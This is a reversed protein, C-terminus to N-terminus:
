LGPGCDPDRGQPTCADEDVINFTITASDLVPSDLCSGDVFDFVDYTLEFAGSTSPAIYVLAQPRNFTDGVRIETPPDDSSTVTGVGPLGTVRYCLTPPNEQASTAPVVGPGILLVCVLALISIYVNNLRM